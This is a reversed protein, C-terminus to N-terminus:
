SFPNSLRSSKTPQAYSPGTFLRGDKNKTIKMKSSRSRVERIGADRKKSQTTRNEKDNTGRYSRRKISPKTKMSDLNSPTNTNECTPEHKEYKKDLVEIQPRLCTGDNYYFQRNKKVEIYKTEVGTNGSVDKKLEVREDICKFGKKDVFPAYVDQNKINGIKRYKSGSDVFFSNVGKMKPTVYCDASIGNLTVKVLSAFVM